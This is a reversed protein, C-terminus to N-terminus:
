PGWDSVAALRAVPGILAEGVPAAVTLFRTPAFLGVQSTLPLPHASQHVGDKGQRNPQFHSPNRLNRDM